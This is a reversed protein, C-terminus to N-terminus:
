LTLHLAPYSKVIMVQETSVHQVSGFAFPFMVCSSWKNAPGAGKDGAKQFISFPWLSKNVVWMLGQHDPSGVSLVVPLLARERVVAKESQLHLHPVSLCFRPWRISALTHLTYKRTSTFRHLNSYLPYKTLGPGQALQGSCRSNNRCPNGLTVCSAVFSRRIQALIFCESFLRGRPVQM